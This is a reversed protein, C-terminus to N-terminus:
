SPERLLTIIIEAGRGQCPGVAIQGGHAEVIRKAIAMGSGTGKTRTTFFPEFIRRRQEPSLGPGNDRVAIRVAPQGELTMASATVTVEVPDHCAALANELINRFVQGLWEWGRDDGV